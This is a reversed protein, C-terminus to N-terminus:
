NGDNLWSGYDEAMIDRHEELSQIESAMWAELADLRELMNDVKAELDNLLLQRKTGRRAELDNM